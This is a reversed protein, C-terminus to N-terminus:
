ERRSCTYMATKSLLLTSSLESTSKLFQFLEWFEKIDTITSVEKLSSSYEETKIRDIDQVWLTFNSSLKFSMILKYVGMVVICKIRVLLNMNLWGPRSKTKAPCPVCSFPISEEMGWGLTLLALLMALYNIPRSKYSIDLVSLLFRM